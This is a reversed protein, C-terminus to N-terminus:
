PWARPPLPLKDKTSAMNATRRKQKLTIRHLLVRQSRALAASRVNKRERVDICHTAQTWAARKAAPTASSYHAFLHRGLFPLPFRCAFGPAEAFAAGARRAMAAARPPRRLAVATVLQRTLVQAPRPLTAVAPCGFLCFLHRGRRGRWALSGGAREGWVDSGKGDFRVISPHSAGLDLVGSTVPGVRAIPPCCHIPAGPRPKYILISRCPSAVLQPVGVGGRRRWSRVAPEAPDRFRHRAWFALAATRAM